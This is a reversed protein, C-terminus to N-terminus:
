RLSLQVMPAGDGRRPGLKVARTYGGRVERYRPGLDTFLKKVVDDSLVFRKAHRRHHVSDERALSILREALRQAAEAKAETTVITERTLLAVVQSRLMARRPGQARDFKAYPM